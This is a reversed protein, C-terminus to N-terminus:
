STDKPEVAVRDFVEYEMSGKGEGGEVGHSDSWSKRESEREIAGLAVSVPGGALGRVNRDTVVMVRRAGLNALDM